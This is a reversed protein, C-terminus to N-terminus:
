ATLLGLSAGSAGVTTAFLDGPNGSFYAILTVLLGAGVGCFLYYYLFRRMGWIRELLSGFMWLSIMNFLIHWLGGHLFMYTLPQWLAFRFSCLREAGRLLVAQDQGIPVLCGPILAFLQDFWGVGIANLNFGGGQQMQFWIQLLFVALNIVLLYQVASGLALPNNLKRM